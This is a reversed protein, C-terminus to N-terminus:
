MRRVMGGTGTVIQNATVTTATSAVIVVCAALANFVRFVESFRASIRCSTTFHM